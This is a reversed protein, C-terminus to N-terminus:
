ARPGYMARFRERARYLRQRVATGSLSMIRGIEDTKFGAVVFLYLVERDAPTMRDLVSQVVISEDPSHAIPISELAEPDSYIWRRRRFEDMSRNRAVTYLWAGNIPKRRTLAEYARLFTDQVCDLAIETNGVISMVFAYLPREYKGMLSVLESDHDAAADAGALLGSRALVTSMNGESGSIRDGDM